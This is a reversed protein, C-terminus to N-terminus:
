PRGEDNWKDILKCSPAVIAKIDFCQVSMPDSRFEAVILDLMTFAKKIEESTM